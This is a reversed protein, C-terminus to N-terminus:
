LKKKWIESFYKKGQVYYAWLLVGRYIGPFTKMPRKKVNIKQPLPHFIAVWWAHCVAKLDEFHGTLLSKLAYAMDLSFRLPMKWCKEGFPLHMSLMWLNNRFNLFVKRSNGKPLTGGGVHYVVSAPCCMVRYGHLHLRWCLEIEEMHAFFHENFGNMQFFVEGRFFLAAGSAWFIDQIDNYQDHDRECTEVIRGRAFPYGLIDMWGGCAGAYEFFQKEKYSLLKPQCAAISTDNEMLQIIPDIWGPTVEIDSNLLIFYPEKLEKLAHNYGGAYGYNKDLVIQKVAPYNTQLYALSGDTSGNDAVYVQYYAYTSALVSPLFQELFKKGNYNLIVIAVAPNQM